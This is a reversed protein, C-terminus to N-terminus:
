EAAEDSVKKELANFKQLMMKNAEKIQSELDKKSKMVENSVTKHMEEIKKDVQETMISKKCYEDKVNNYLQTVKINLQDFNQAETNEDKLLEEDKAIKDKQQKDLNFVVKELQMM